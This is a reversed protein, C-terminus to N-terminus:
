KKFTEEVFFLNAYTACILSYNKKQALKLMSLASSGQNIKNNKEQVFEVDNPITPNFEIVIIKPRFKKLSEFIHYDNGDIDISLFDFGINFNNSELINDLSNPGEFAVYKNVLIVNKKELNKKLVIFRKENGEILLGKFSKNLILNYCNSLFIGDWAGFECCSKDSNKGLRNLIEEIIGDEGNQSFIDKKFKQLDM